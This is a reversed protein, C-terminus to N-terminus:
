LYLSVNVLSMTLKSCSPAPQLFYYSLQFAPNFLACKQFYVLYYPLVPYMHTKAVYTYSLVAPITQLAATNPCSTYPSKLMM